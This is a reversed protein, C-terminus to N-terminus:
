RVYSDTIKNIHRISNASTPKMRKSLNLNIAVVIVIIRYKLM